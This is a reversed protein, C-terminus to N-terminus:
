FSEGRSNLLVIYVKTYNGTCGTRQGRQAGVDAYVMHPALTHLIVIKNLNVSFRISDTPNYKM